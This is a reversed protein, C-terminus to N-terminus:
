GPAPLRHGPQAPGHGLPLRHELPGPAAHIALDCPLPQHAPHRCARSPCPPLTTLAKGFSHGHWLPRRIFWETGKRHQCTAQEPTSEAARAISQHLTRGLRVCAGLALSGLMPLALVQLWLRWQGREARGRRCGGRERRDVDILGWWVCMVVGAVWMVAPHAHAPHGRLGGAGGGPRDPERGAARVAGRAAGRQRRAGGAGVACGACLKAPALLGAAAGAGCAGVHGAPAPHLPHTAAHRVLWERAAPCCQM